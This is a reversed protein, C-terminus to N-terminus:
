NLVSQNNETLAVHQIIMLESTMESWEEELIISEQLYDEFSSLNNIYSNKSKEFLM